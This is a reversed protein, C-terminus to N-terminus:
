GKGHKKEWVEEAEPRRLYIPIADDPNTFRGAQAMALGTRAVVDARPPWIERPLEIVDPGFALADRHYDIGEGLVSLPKPAAALMEAPAVVQTPYVQRLPQGAADRSFAATYVQSRKADLVVAVNIADPPANAALVEVTPVLVLKCGLSFALTKAFSFAIRLGTFSGPGASVYIHQIDGPQWGLEALTADLMPLMDVAHDRTPRTQDFPRYALLREGAALAISGNRSSTEVALIRPEAHDPPQTV